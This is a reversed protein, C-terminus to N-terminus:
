LIRQGMCSCVIGAAFQASANMTDLIPNVEAVEMSGVMGTEALAEMIFHAERYSLGGPVPTGVGSAVTPDVSDCDFSVHIHDVNERLHEIVKKVIPYIGEKDIEFMTYVPVGLEKITLREGHDISRAGIVAINRAEMKIFDGGISTLEPAGHGLLVAIPMGHINGSPTTQPTNIDTHADVWIVGLRKKYSRCHAAVGSISGISMSHDGGLVLPFGGNDLVSRVSSQLEDCARSIEPLYRLNPAYLEQVESNKIELDGEDHVDYGMDELKQAIDALRIASPGMDVGRRGAGLDSPFGIIHVTKRASSVHQQQEINDSFNNM